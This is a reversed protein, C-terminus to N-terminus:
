PAETVDISWEIVDDPLDTFAMENAISESFVGAFGETIETVLQEDVHEAFTLTVTISKKMM